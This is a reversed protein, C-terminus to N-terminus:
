KTLTFTIKPKKLTDTLTLTASTSTTSIVGTTGLYIGGFNVDCNDYQYSAFPNYYAVLSYQGNAINRTPRWQWTEDKLFEFGYYSVNNIEAKPLEDYGIYFESSDSLVMIPSFHGWGSTGFTFSVDPQFNWLAPNTLFQSRTVGNKVLYFGATENNSDNDSPTALLYSPLTMDSPPAFQGTLFLTAESSEIKQNDVEALVNYNMVTPDSWTSKTMGLLYVGVNTTMYSAFASQAASDTSFHSVNADAIIQGQYDNDERIRDFFYGFTSSTVPLAFGSTTNGVLKIPRYKLFEVTTEGMGGHSWVDGNKDVSFFLGYMLNNESAAGSQHIIETPMNDAQIALGYWGYRLGADVNRRVGQYDKLTITPMDHEAFSYLKPATVRLTKNESDWAVRATLRGSLPVSTWSSAETTTADKMELSAFAVAEMLRPNEVSYISPVLYMKADTKSLDSVKPIYRTVGPNYVFDQGIYSNVFGDHGGTDSSDCGLRWYGSSDKLYYQVGYSYLGTSEATRLNSDTALWAGYSSTLNISGSDNTPTTLQVKATSAFTPLTLESFTTAVLKENSDTSIAFTDLSSYVTIRKAHTAKVSSGASLTSLKITDTTYTALVQSKVTKKDDLSAPLKKFSGDTEHLLNVTM